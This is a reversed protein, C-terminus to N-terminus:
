HPNTQFPDPSSWLVYSNGMHLNRCFISRHKYEYLSSHQFKSTLRTQTPSCFKPRRTLFGNMADGWSRERGGPKVSTAFSWERSTPSSCLFTTWNSTEISWSGPTYTTWRQPSSLATTTNVSLAFIFILRLITNHAVHRPRVAMKMHKRRVCSNWYNSGIKNLNDAVHRPRVVMKMPKRRVFSQKL